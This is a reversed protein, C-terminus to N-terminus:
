TRYSCMCMLLVDDLEQSLSMRPGDGRSDRFLEDEQLEKQDRQSNKKIVKSINKATTTSPILPPASSPDLVTEVRQPPDSSPPLSPNFSGIIKSKEKKRKAPRESTSPDIPITFTAAKSKEKTISTSASPPRTKQKPKSSSAFIDDISTVTEQTAAAKTQPQSIM